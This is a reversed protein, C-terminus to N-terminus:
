CDTVGVARAGVGVGPDEEGITLRVLPPWLINGHYPPGSRLMVEWVGVGGGVAGGGSLGLCWFGLEAGDEGGGGGAGGGGRGLGGLGRYRLSLYSSRNQTPRRRGIKTLM